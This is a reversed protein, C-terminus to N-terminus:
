SKGEGIVQLEAETRGQADRLAGEGFDQVTLEFFQTLNAMRLQACVGASANFLRVLACRRRVAALLRLMDPAITGVGTLDFVVSRCRHLSILDLAQRGSLGDAAEQADNGGFGFVLVEGAEYVRLGEIFSPPSLPMEPTWLFPPDPPIPEAITERKM